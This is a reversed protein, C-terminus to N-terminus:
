YLQKVYHQSNTQLNQTDFLFTPTVVKVHRVTCVGKILLKRMSLDMLVQCQNNCVVLTSNMIPNLWWLRFYQFIPYISDRIRSYAAPALAFIQFSWLLTECSHRKSTTTLRKLQEVLFTLRDKQQVKQSRTRGCEGHWWKHWWFM